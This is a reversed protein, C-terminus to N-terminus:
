VVSRAAVSRAAALGGRDRRAPIEGLSRLLSHVTQFDDVEEIEIAVVTGGTGIPAIRGGNERPVEEVCIRELQSSWEAHAINGM